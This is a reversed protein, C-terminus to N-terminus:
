SWGSTTWSAGTWSAGTWSAGTWSAGTWSAGTWSAGTWTANSDGAAIWADPDWPAGTATVEGALLAGNVTVHQTGRADELSGLGTSRAWTQVTDPASSRAAKTTV